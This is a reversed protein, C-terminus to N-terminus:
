ERECCVYVCSCVSVGAMVCVATGEMCVPCTDGDRLFVRQPQGALINAMAQSPAMQASAAAPRTRTGAGCDPNDDIADTRQALRIRLGRQERVFENISFCRFVGTSANYGLWPLVYTLALLGRPELYLFISSWILLKAIARVRHNHVIVGCVCLDYQPDAASGAAIL